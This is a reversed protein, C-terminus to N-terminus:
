DAEEHAMTRKTGVDPSAPRQVGADTAGRSGRVKGKHPRDTTADPQDVHGAAPAAYLRPTNLDCDRADCRASSTLNRVMVERGLRRITPPTSCRRRRWRRRARDRQWRRRTRACRGPRPRVRLVVTLGKSTRDDSGVEFAGGTIASQARHTWSFSASQAMAPEPRGGAERPTGSDFSFM